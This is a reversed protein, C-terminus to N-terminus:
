LTALTVRATGSYAGLTVPDGAVIVAAINLTFPDNLFPSLREAVLIGGGPVGRFLEGQTGAGSGAGGWQSGAFDVSGQHGATRDGASLGFVSQPATVTYYNLDRYTADMDAFGGAAPQIVPAAGANSATVQYGNANNTSVRYTLSAQATESGTLNGLTLVDPSGNVFTPSNVPAPAADIATPETLTLMLPVSLTVVKTDSTAGIGTASWLGLVVLMASIAALLHGAIHTVRHWPVVPTRVDVQAAVQM